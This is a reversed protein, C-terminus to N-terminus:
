KRWTCADCAPAVLTEDEASAGLMVPYSRM